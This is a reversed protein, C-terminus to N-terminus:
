IKKLQTNKQLVTFIDVITSKKTSGSVKKLYNDYRLLCLSANFQPDVDVVLINKSRYKALVYSLLVCLTTKGVGGKMNIMSIIKASM